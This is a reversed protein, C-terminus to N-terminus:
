GTTAFLFTVAIAIAVLTGWLPRSQHIWHSAPLKRLAFAAVGFAIAASAFVLHMSLVVPEAQPAYTIMLSLLFGLGSAASIYRCLWVLNM